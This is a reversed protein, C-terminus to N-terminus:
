IGTEATEIPPTFGNVEEQEDKCETCGCDTDCSNKANNAVEEYITEIAESAKPEDFMDFMDKLFVLVEPFSHKLELADLEEGLQLRKVSEQIVDWAAM